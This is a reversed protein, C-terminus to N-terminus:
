KLTTFVKLFSGVKTRVPEQRSSASRSILQQGDALANELKSDFRKLLEPGHWALPRRSGHLLRRSAKLLETETSSPWPSPLKEEAVIATPSEVEAAGHTRERRRRGDVVDFAPIPEALLAL